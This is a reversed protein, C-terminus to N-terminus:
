RDKLNSCVDSQWRFDSWTVGMKNCGGGETLSVFKQDVALWEAMNQLFPYEGSKKLDKEVNKDKKIKQQIDEIDPIIVFKTALGSAKTFTDPHFDAIYEAKVQM